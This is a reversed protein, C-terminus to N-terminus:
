VREGEEMAWLTDHVNNRDTEEVTAIRDHAVFEQSNKSRNDPVNNKEWKARNNWDTNTNSITEGITAVLKCSWSTWVLTFSTGGHLEM